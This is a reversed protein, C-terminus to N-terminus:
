GIVIPGHALRNLLDAETAVVWARVEEPTRLTDSRLSVTQTKPELARAADARARAFRTPLAEALDRWGALSRRDLAELLRDEDGVDLPEIVEIRNSKAIALRDERSLKSWDESAELGASERDFIEQCRRHAVTIAERLAGELSKRLPLVYDTESLLSRNALLAAMEAGVEIAIPLDSAHAALRELRRWSPGREDARQKLAQWEEIFGELEKKAGLIKALQESGALRRLADLRECSPRAPLPPEGGAGDALRQVADLFAGAKVEEEGSRVSVGVSQFLGRLALKETTGLRIREPHFEASAIKNQDLANPAVPQGNVTVRLAGSFHLAILAADVADQPWGFPASKLERRIDTGRAGNGLTALVQRCVPHDETPGDWGVVKFPQDSGDRARKIAAEWAGHDAEQFRPFLRSLSATAATHLKQVLSEGFVESGGSQYVRASAVVERVLDDRAGEAVALRSEMSRRAEKGEDAAPVGKLDLVARASEAEIIARRLDDAAKKPLFVHVLPDEMGRRRAEDEVRRQEVTWGDRLWVLVQDQEAPPEDAQAHLALTRRLKSQGHPLRVDAVAEQVASGLLQDRKAAIEMEKQGSAAVRERFARDWEAGETTQLRYEEGVKMFVGADALAELERAVERRVASSDATLDAVLLDAIMGSTARVGSDVGVERPLKNILFVLGAIRRRLRGVPTGDDLTEIRTAIESLLVGTNVMDPAIATFLADAPIVSGIHETAVEQLADHLIRLQSRLQSHTGAADVARFSEEWFRRRTPLLPYDEVMFQRDESREALRTGQLQKSIEGANAELVKRVPEVGRPKKHLLVRRIVAEVDADSLQVRIRFRDQLWQLLPTSSLASQGSMVLMLRSDLQTQVAEALETITGARDKSDGIYQQVEDLILVTLPLAGNEGLAERTAEIFEATTIDGNPLPFRDRLVQRAQREDAAFDPDCKLVERALIPSVYLNALERLWEKGAGEVGARVADLFGQERLWFCFQAQPYHEPFGTARLIVSLVTLRVFERSGEQLTGTAAVTPLGSRTAQTDLERLLAVVDEPLGRVLSRATAGDEFETNVWLHGLMKLLHSKGSGFFGSVWAANQRPRDLHSLYSKLITEIARAYQGDCVFTELEARLEQIAREDALAAIRAQGSNALASTRPDRDLTEFIKM